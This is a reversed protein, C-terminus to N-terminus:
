AHNEVLGNPDHIVIAGELYRKRFKYIPASFTGNSLKMGFRYAKGRKHVEFTDQQTGDTFTLPTSTKIIQGHKLTLKSNIRDWNAQRWKNAYENDTPTLLELIKKPCNYAYPGCTEDMDKVGFNNHDNKVWQVLGIYAWVTKVGTAKDTTEVAGYYERFSKLGGRLLKTSVKDTDWTLNDAFYKGVAGKNMHQFTWGM